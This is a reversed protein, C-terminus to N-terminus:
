FIGDFSVVSNNRSSAETSLSEVLIDDDEMSLDAEPISTLIAKAKQARAIRSKNQSRKSTSKQSTTPTSPTPEQPQNAKNLYEEISDAEITRSRTRM